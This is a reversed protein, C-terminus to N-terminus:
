KVTFVCSIKEDTSQFTNQFKSVPAVGDIFTLVYALGAGFTLGIVKKNVDGILLMGFWMVAAMLFVSITPTPLGSDAAPIM